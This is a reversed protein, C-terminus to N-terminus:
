GGASSNATHASYGCTGPILWEADLSCYSARTVVPSSDAPTQMADSSHHPLCATVHYTRHASVNPRLYIGRATSALESALADASRSLFAHRITHLVDPCAASWRTSSGPKVVLGSPVRRFPRAADTEASSSM